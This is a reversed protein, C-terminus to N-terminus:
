LLRRVGTSGLGTKLGIKAGNCVSESCFPAMGEAPNFCMPNVSGRCSRPRRRATASAWSIAVMVRTREIATAAATTPIARAHAGTVGAALAECLWQAVSQQQERSQPSTPEDPGKRSCAPKVRM